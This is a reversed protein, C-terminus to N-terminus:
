YLWVWLCYARVLIRIVRMAEQMDRATKLFSAFLPTLLQPLTHVRVLIPIIHLEKSDSPTAQSPTDKSESGTSGGSKKRTMLFSCGFQSQALFLRGADRTVSRLNTTELLKLQLFQVPPRPLRIVFGHFPFAILLIDGRM